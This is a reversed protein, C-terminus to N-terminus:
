DSWNDEDDPELAPIAAIQEADDDYETLRNEEEVIKEPATWVLIQKDAGASYFDESGLSTAIVCCRDFHGPLTRLLLGTALHFM